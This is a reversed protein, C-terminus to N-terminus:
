SNKLLAPFSLRDYLKFFFKDKIYYVPINKNKVKPDEVNAACCVPGLGVWDSSGASNKSCMRFMYNKGTALRPLTVATDAADVYGAVAEQFYFKCQSPHKM